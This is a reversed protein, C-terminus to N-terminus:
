FDDLYENIDASTDELNKLFTELWVLQESVAGRIGGGDGGSEM